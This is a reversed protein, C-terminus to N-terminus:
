AKWKAKKSAAASIPKDNNDTPAASPQKKKAGVKGPAPRYDSDKM